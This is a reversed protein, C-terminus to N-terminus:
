RTRLPVGGASKDFCPFLDKLSFLFFLNIWKLTKIFDKFIKYINLMASISLFIQDWLKCKYFNVVYLFLLRQPTDEAHNKRKRYYNGWNAIIKIFICKSPIYFQSFFIIIFFFLLFSLLLKSTMFGISTGYSHLASVEFM